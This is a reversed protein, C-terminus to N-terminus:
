HGTADPVDVLVPLADALGQFHHLVAAYGADTMGQRFHAMTLALAQAAMVMPDDHDCLCRGRCKDHLRTACPLCVMDDATMTM